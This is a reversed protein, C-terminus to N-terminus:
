EHCPSEERQLNWRGVMMESLPSWRYREPVARKLVSYLLQKSRADRHQPLQDFCPSRHEMPEIDQMQRPLTNSLQTDPRHIDEHIRGLECDSHPYYQCGLNWDYGLRM